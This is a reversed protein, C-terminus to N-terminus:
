FQIQNDATSSSIANDLSLLLTLTISFHSIDGQFEEETGTAVFSAETQVRGQLHGAASKKPPSHTM